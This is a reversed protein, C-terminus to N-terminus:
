VPVLVWGTEGEEVHFTKWGAKPLDIGQDGVLFKMFVGHTVVVVDRREGQGERRGLDEVYDRLEGRVKRAREEVSEDDVAYFGTKGTWGDELLGFELESFERELVERSSGTDCPEASREQLKPDLILKAGNSVGGTGPAYYSKDLVHPFALLTTQITRRLPSSIILGIKNSHQFNQSLASAQTKGLPTLAPDPLTFDKTINHIAEAHRIVHIHGAM